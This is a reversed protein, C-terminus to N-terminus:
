NVPSIGHIHREDDPLSQDFQPKLLAIQCTGGFHRFGVNRLQQRPFFRGWRRVPGVNIVFHFGQQAERTTLEGLQSVELTL